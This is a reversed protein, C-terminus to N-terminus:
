QDDEGKAMYIAGALSSLLVISLIEFPVVFDTFILTGIAKINSQDAMNQPLQDVTSWSTGYLSVLVVALFLGVIAARAFARGIVELSPIEMHALRILFRRPNFQNVFSDWIDPKDTAMMM